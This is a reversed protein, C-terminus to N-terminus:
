PATSPNPAAGTATRRVSAPVRVGLARVRAAEDAPPAAPPVAPVAAGQEAGEAAPPAGEAGAPAGEATGPVADVAAPPPAVPKRPEYPAFNPKHIWGSMASLDDSPKVALKPSVGHGRQAYAAMAQDIPLRGSGLKQQEEARVASLKEDIPADRHSAHVENVDLYSEYWLQVTFLGAITALTSGLYAFLENRGDM